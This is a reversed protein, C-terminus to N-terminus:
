GRRLQNKGKNKWPYLRCSDYYLEYGDDFVIKMKNNVEYPVASPVNVLIARDTIYTPTLYAEQDNFWIERAGGQNEGVIARPNGPRLHNVLIIDEKAAM